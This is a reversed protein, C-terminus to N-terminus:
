VAALMWATLRLSAWNLHQVKRDSQTDNWPTNLAYDLVTVVPKSTQSSFTNTAMSASTENSSGWNVQDKWPSETDSSNHLLCVHAEYQAVQIPWIYVPGFSSAWIQLFIDWLMSDRLSWEHSVSYQCSLQDVSINQLGPHHLAVSTVHHGICSEWLHNAEQSLWSLHVWGQKNICYRATSDTLM